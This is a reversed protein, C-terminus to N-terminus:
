ESRLSRAPDRRAARLAQGGVAGVAFVLALAVAGAFLGPGLPVRYAFGDLWTRMAWVSAPVAVLAAVGVLVVTERTLLGVIQRVSAGLVRRVGIEKTRREATYAALGFLGLCAILIAVGAFAALVGGLRRESAYLKAVADDMFTVEPVAQGGVGALAARIGDLTPAIAGPRLRVLLVPYSLALGEEWPKNVHVLMPTIASRFSDVHQDAVVGVVTVDDEGFVFSRGVADRPSGWGLDAVATANLVVAATRDSPRDDLDRGALLPAGLASLYGPEAGVVRADFDRGNVPFRYTSGANSPYSDAPVAAAVGPLAAVARAAVDFQQALRPGDLDVVVLGDAAYGPDETQAYRLQSLVVATGALLGVAVVLQVVVLTQRLRGAGRPAASGRLAAVPRMGSLVLAPYVGAVLGTVLSLALAAGVFRVDVDGAGIESGFLANFGPRLAIALLVAAVGSLGALVVSETLFQAAVSWRGAGVAKRVGVERARRSARATALNVYNIAGLLLVFLAVTSFLRLAETDGRFGDPRSVESMHLDALPVVGYDPKPPGVGSSALHESVIRAFVPALDADTRGPALRLYTSPGSMDWRGDREDAPLSARSLLADATLVDTRGSSDALIGTVAVDLTDSWRELRLTQDVADADGFLRRAASEKLVIGPDRLVRSRDGRLLRFAFLDFFGDSPAHVDLTFVGDRGPVRVGQVGGRAVVVAKEVAADEMLAAALPVQTSLGPTSEENFHGNLSVARLRDEHPHFTDVDNEARVFMGVLLCCALAVALGVGNLLAYGRDRRLTRLAITLHHRFM